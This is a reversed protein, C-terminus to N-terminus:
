QLSIYGYVSFERSTEITLQHTQTMSQLLPKQKFHLYSKVAQKIINTVGTQTLSLGYSICYLIFDYMEDSAATDLSINRKGM